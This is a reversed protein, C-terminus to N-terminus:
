PVVKSPAPLARFAARLDGACSPCLRMAPMDGGMSLWEWGPPPTSGWCYYGEADGLGDMKSAAASHWRVDTPHSIARTECRGCIAVPVDHITVGEITTTDRM